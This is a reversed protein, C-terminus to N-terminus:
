SSNCQFGKVKKFIGFPQNNWSKKYSINLEIFSNGNM